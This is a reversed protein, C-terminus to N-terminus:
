MNELPSIQVVGAVTVQLVAFHTYGRPVSIVAADGAQVMLDGAVATQAGAGIRVYAANSSAIRIYRPVEGSSCLPITTGASAAGSAQSTGASVVTISNEFTNSM